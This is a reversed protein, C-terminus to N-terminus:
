AVSGVTGGSSAGVAERRFERAQLERELILLEFEGEMDLALGSAADGDM